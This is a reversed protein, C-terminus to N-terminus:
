ASRCWSNTAVEVVEVLWSNCPLLFMVNRLKRAGHRDVYNKWIDMKM